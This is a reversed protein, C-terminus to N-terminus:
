PLYVYGTYIICDQWVMVRDNVKIFTGSFSLPKKEFTPLNEFM